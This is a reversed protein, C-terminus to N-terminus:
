MCVQNVDSSSSQQSLGNSGGVNQKNVWENHTREFESAMADYVSTVSEITSQIVKKLEEKYADADAGKWSDSIATEVEPFSNLVNLLRSKRNRIEAALENYGETNYGIFAM